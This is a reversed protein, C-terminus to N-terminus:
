GWLSPGGVHVGRSEKSAFSPTDRKCIEDPFLAECLNRLGPLDPKREEGDMGRRIQWRVPIIVLHLARDRSAIKCDLQVLAHKDVAAIALQNRPSVDRENLSSILV